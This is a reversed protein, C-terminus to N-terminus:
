MLRRDHFFSLFLPQRTIAPLLSKASMDPLSCLAQAAELIILSSKQKLRGDLYELLSKNNPDDLLVERTLRILLCHAFPSRITTKIM